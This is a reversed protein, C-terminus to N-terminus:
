IFMFPPPPACALRIGHFKVSLFTRQQHLKMYKTKKFNLLLMLTKSFQSKQYKFTLKPQSRFFFRHLFNHKHLHTLGAAIECAMKQLQLLEGNRYLWEHQTVYSRLDGQLAFRLDYLICVFRNWQQVAVHVM